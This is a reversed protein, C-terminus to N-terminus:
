SLVALTVVGHREAMDDLVQMIRGGVQAEEAVHNAWAPQDPDAGRVQLGEAWRTSKL